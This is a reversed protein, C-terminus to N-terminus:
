LKPGVDGSVNLIASYVAAELMPGPVVTYVVVASTTPVPYVAPPLVNAMEVLGVDPVFLKPTGVANTLKVLEDHGFEVNV